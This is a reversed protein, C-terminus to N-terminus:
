LNDDTYGGTCSLCANAFRDYEDYAAGPKGFLTIIRDIRINKGTDLHIFVGHGEIEEMKVITGEETAIRQDEDFYFVKGNLAKLIADDIVERYAWPVPLYATDM